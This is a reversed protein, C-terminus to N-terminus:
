KSRSLVSIFDFDISSVEGFHRSFRNPDDVVHAFGELTAFEVHFYPMEKPVYGRIGSSPTKVLKKNQCWESGSELIAKKFHLPAYDGVGAPIPVCIVFTHGNRSNSGMNEFFVCTQNRAHFMKVLCKKFNRIEEYVNEDMVVCSSLHQIPVIMCHGDCLPRREPLCLYAGAGCSIIYRKKGDARKWVDCLGCYKEAKRFNSEGVPTRKEVFNNRQDEHKRKKHTPKLRLTDGDLDEQGVLVNKSFEQDYNMRTSVKEQKHMDELTLTKDDAFYNDMKKRSHPREASKLHSGVGSKTERQKNASVQSPFTEPRSKKLSEQLRTLEELKEKLLFIQTQDGLMECKILKAHTKNVQMQVESLTQLPLEPVSNKDRTSSTPDEKNGDTRPLKMKGKLANHKAEEELYKIRQDEDLSLSLSECSSHFSSSESSRSLAKARWDVKRSM